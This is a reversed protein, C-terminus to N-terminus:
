LTDECTVGLFKEEHRRGVFILSEKGKGFGQLCRVNTYEMNWNRVLTNLYALSDWLDLSGQNHHCIIIDRPRSCNERPKQGGKLISSNTAHARTLSDLSNSRTGDHITDVIPQPCGVNLSSVELDGCSM